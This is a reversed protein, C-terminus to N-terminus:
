LRTQHSTVGGTERPTRIGTNDTRSVWSRTRRTTSVLGERLRWEHEVLLTARLESLVDTPANELARLISERDIIWLALVQTGILLAHDLKHAVDEFGASRGPIGSASRLRVSM